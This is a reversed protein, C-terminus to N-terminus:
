GTAFIGHREELFRVALREDPFVPIYEDGAVWACWQRSPLEAIRYIDGLKGFGQRIYPSQVASRAGEPATIKGRGHYISEFSVSTEGVTFFSVYARLRKVPSAEYLCVPLEGVLEDVAKLTNKLLQLSGFKQKGTVRVTKAWVQREKSLVYDLRKLSSCLYDVHDQMEARVLVNYSRTGAAAEEELFVRVVDARGPCGARFGSSRSYFIANAFFTERLEEFPYEKYQIVKMVM